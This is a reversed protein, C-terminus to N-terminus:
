CGDYLGIIVFNFFFQIYLHYVSPRVKEQQDLTGAVGRNNRVDWLKVTKDWSGTCVLGVCSM